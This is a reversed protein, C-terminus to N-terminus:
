SLERVPLLVVLECFVEDEVESSTLFYGLECGIGLGLQQVLVPCREKLLEFGAPIRTGSASPERIREALM